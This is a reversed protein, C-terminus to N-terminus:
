KGEPLTDDMEDMAVKFVELNKLLLLVQDNIEKVLNLLDQLKKIASKM